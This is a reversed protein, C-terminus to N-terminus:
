GEIDFARTDSGVIFTSIIPVQDFRWRCIVGTLIARISLLSAGVEYGGLVFDSWCKTSYIIITIIIVVIIIPKSFSM